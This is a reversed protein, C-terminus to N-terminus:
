ACGGRARPSEGAACRVRRRPTVPEASPPRAARPIAGEARAERGEPLRLPLEMRVPEVRRDRGKAVALRLQQDDPERGAEPARVPGPAREGAVVGASQEILCKAFEAKGCPTVVGPGIVAELKAPHADGIRHAADRRLVLRLGRSIAVQRRNRAASIAPM